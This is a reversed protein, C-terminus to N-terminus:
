IFPNRLKNSARSLNFASSILALHTFGQPFNGLMEGQKSTEESYLGVHNSFTMMQEFLITAEELSEGGARTLAEILWFTCMNFTGEEGELGEKEVSPQYRYVLGGSVLGGDKLPRDLANLSKSMRPDNPSVFFVLPMILISADLADSDYSQIFSGTEECWGKEMIELYIMDRTALWKDKPAPFSRKDALRLARDVAVWCMLKSYVFHHGEQSRVEWIGKDPKMWNDCVFNVLKVIEIWTEYAVPMAWKNFLYISDMLEGYIDMQIQTSAANGIRVPRSNRYGRLHDLDREVIHHEGNIGYMIQLSGNSELEHSRKEIWSMFATAEDRFGIRLLAYVIFSADRLWTFRYDWNRTGGIEEPIGFTAAAIIAGTPEYTLLKLTLASREVMEKFVGQYTCQSLWRRWYKLNRTFIKEVPEKRISSLLKKDRIHCFEFALKQNEQLTFESIIGSGVQRTDTRILSCIRKVLAFSTDKSQFIYSEEEGLKEITHDDLAYNFSPFCLCSMDVTGRIGEVLRIVGNRWDNTSSKVPMFDIVQVIGDETFFRTILLNTQPWYFQKCTM